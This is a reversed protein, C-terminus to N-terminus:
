MFIFSALYIAGATIVLVKIKDILPLDQWYVIAHTKYLAWAAPLTKKPSFFPAAAVAV